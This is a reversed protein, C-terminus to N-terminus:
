SPNLYLEADAFWANGTATGDNVQMGQMWLVFQTIQTPPIPTSGWNGMTYITSPVIVDWTKLTWVSTGWKVMADLHEQGSQPHGDVICITGDGKPAYFDIGIRGGHYPDANEVATSSDTKIWCKAVIHDGPKTPYWISNVERATNSDNSTHPELRISPKGPTRVVNYDLYIIQPDPGFTLFWDEPIVALNINRPDTPYSVTGYSQIPGKENGIALSSGFLSVINLSLVVLLELKRIQAKARASAVRRLNICSM